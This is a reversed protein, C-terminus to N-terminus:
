PRDVEQATPPPAEGSSRTEQAAPSGAPSGCLTDRITYPKRGQSEFYTRTVLEAMLGLTVLQVGSFVLLVALTLLPRNGITHQLVLRDVALYTLLGIGIGFAGLGWRGFLQIPKTAFDLLFKVTLLDLVVRLTRGLGYKSRGTLRPHHSVPLEAVEGGRWRCLAPIFRHMEGYLQIDALVERRYAKLSCGYDHLHVGTVASILRNALRSPLRRVLNDQRDVRWGSVVDYGEELKAILAPIDGPDNQLDADLTVVVEGRATDIGAAMAATQGFNRRLRVATVRSDAEHIVKLAAFSGDTSGDDVFVTEWSFPSEELASCIRRHLEAVSDEEDFVPIVLSLHPNDPMSGIM